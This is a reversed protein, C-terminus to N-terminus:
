KWCRTCRHMGNAIADEEAIQDPISTSDSCFQHKHYVKGRPYIYVIVGNCISCPTLGLALADEESIADWARHFFFYKCDTSRHFRTAGINYYCPDPPISRDSAKTSYAFEDVKGRLSPPIRKNSRNKKQSSFVVIMIIATLLGIIPGILLWM